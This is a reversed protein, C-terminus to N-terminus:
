VVNIGDTRCPSILCFSFGLTTSWFVAKPPMSWERMGLSQSTGDQPPASSPFTLNSKGMKVYSNETKYEDSSHCNKSSSEPSRM